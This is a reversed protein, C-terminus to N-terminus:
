LADPSSEFIQWAPGLGIRFFDRFSAPFLLDDFPTQFSAALFRRLNLLRDIRGEQVFSSFFAYRLRRGADELNWHKARAVAAVDERGCFYPLDLDAALSAVFEEDRESDPGRLCHNFHLVALRIGQKESIERLIRVLAVSDAGGSVGVGVRDGARLMQHRSITSLIREILDTAM